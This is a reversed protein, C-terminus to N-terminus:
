GIGLDGSLEGADREKRIMTRDQWPVRRRRQDQVAALVDDRWARDAFVHLSGHREARQMHDLVDAMTRVQARGAGTGRCDVGKESLQAHLAIPEVSWGSGDASVNYSCAAHPRSTASVFPRM